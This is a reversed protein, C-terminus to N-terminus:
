KKGVKKVAVPKTKVVASKTKANTMQAKFQAVQESLFKTQIWSWIGAGTIVLVLLASIVKEVEASVVHVGILGLLVVIASAIVAANPIQPNM